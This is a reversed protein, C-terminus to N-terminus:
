NISNGNLVDSFSKMYDDNYLLRYEKCFNEYANKAQSHKGMQVLMRCKLAMAEENVPDFRFVYGTLEILFDSDEASTLSNAFYLYLDIVDNSVQAKFEDLWEYNVNPLFAGRSILIALEKLKQKTINNKDKIITVYNYFDIHLRNYDTNLKWYGTEKSITCGDLKELIGKLKAMNVSRNNRASEESKDFWLLEKLKESSIGREWRVTYLLIVLFLEKILPTFQRTIEVGSQDFVQMDGFLFIANSLPKESIHVPVTVPQDVRLGIADQESLLTKANQRRSARFVFFGTGLSLVLIFIFAFILFLPSVEEPEALQDVPPGNLSYIDIRTKNNEEWFLSVAIFRKSKPSYFLDAYANIDHFQYPIPNGRLKFEPRTLSGEILQLSSKFKHKPFVLAYYTKQKEDIILSNAFVFDEGKIKLEYLKKITKKQVDFYLLDYLNRPNLMQKGTTSGYGGFIYAGNGSQGLAALYRPTFADGNVLVNNCKGSPFHYRQITNKYFFHGYGGLAYLSSDLPSYFKNYQWFDTINSKPDYNKSWRRSSADYTSLIKEDLYFNHLVGKNDVISQNGRLLNQKGSAYAAYSLQDEKLSYSILSDMGIIHLVEGSRDFAVSVPGDVTMSSLQQWEYHLKKVWLPNIAEANNGDLSENVVNGKYDNLPWSYKPEGDVAVRVNRIKMPPVDNTKFDLYENAGFLVKFCEGKNLNLSTQGRYGAYALRLQKKEFDFQLKITSWDAYLRDSPVNFAISSFQDGIIVKFHNAEKVDKDYILDINQKDNAVLRVIYGFYDKRAPLFSLDFSIEFNENFCLTTEPSLDLGTRQDQVVEHSYFSLGYSQGLGNQAFLILTLFLAFFPSWTKM